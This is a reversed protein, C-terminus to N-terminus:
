IGSLVIDIQSNVAKVIAAPLPFAADFAATPDGAPVARGATRLYYRMYGPVLDPMVHQLLLAGGRVAGNGTYGDTVGSRQEAPTTNDTIAQAVVGAIAEHAVVYLADVASDPSAPFEVAITNSEKGDNVTRGEGGLPLSLLVEGAAQQTNNLFRSLKPYWTSMWQTNFQAYAAGRTQQEATWYAHYFKTREDQLSQVFLRLWNRDAPTRFNAALLAIEQQMQPDSAAGPNGGSRIFYDTANVIEQFSPFYMGLFQANTLAPNAAFRASLDQQNADLLTVINHQRKRALMAQKYGRAFFPVRGTDSTLMAFGHLWLDVDERASVRWGPTAQRNTSPAGPAPTPGASGAGVPACAAMFPLAALALYKLKMM